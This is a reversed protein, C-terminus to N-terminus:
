SSGIWGLLLYVLLRPMYSGSFYEFVCFAVSYYFLRFYPSFSLLSAPVYWVDDRSFWYFLLPPMLLVHKLMCLWGLYTLVISGMLSISTM